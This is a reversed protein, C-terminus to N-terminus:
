WAHALRCVRGLDAIDGHCTLVVGHSRYLSHLHVSLTSNSNQVEILLQTAQDTGLKQAVTCVVM